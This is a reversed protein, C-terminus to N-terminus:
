QEPKLSTTSFNKPITTEGASAFIKPCASVSMLFAQTFIAPIASDPGGLRGPCYELDTQVLLNQEPVTQHFPYLLPPRFAPGNKLKNHIQSRSAGADGASNILVM